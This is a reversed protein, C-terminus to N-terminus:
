GVQDVFGEATGRVTLNGFMGTHRSRQKQGESFERRCDYKAYQCQCCCDRFSKTADDM